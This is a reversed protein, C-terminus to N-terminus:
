INGQLLINKSSSDVTPHITCFNIFDEMLSKKLLHSLIRLKKRVQGYKSFFDKISFKMKKQVTTMLLEELMLSQVEINTFFRIVNVRNAWTM